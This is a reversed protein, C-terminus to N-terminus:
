RSVVADVARELLAHVREARLLGGLWREVLGDALGVLGRAVANAADGATPGTGGTGCAPASRLAAVVDAERRATDAALLAALEPDFLASAALENRMAAAERREPTDEVGGALLAVLRQRAPAGAPAEANPADAVAAALAARVLGARNGFYHYVLPTSVGAEAAVAQVRVERVGGRRIQATVAALIRAQPSPEGTASGPSATV